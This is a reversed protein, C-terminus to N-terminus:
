FLNCVAHKEDKFYKGNLSTMYHFDFLLAPETTVYRCLLQLDHNRVWVPANGQPISKVVVAILFEFVHSMDLLVLSTHHIKLGNRRLSARRGLLPFIIPQNHM